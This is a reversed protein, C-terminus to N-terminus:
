GHIINKNSICALVVVHSLVMVCYPVKRHCLLLMLVLTNESSPNGQLVCDAVCLKCCVAVRSSLTKIDARRWGM